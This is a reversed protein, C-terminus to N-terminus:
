ESVASSCMIWTQKTSTARKLFLRLAWGFLDIKTAGTIFNKHNWTFPTPIVGMSALTAAILSRLDGM